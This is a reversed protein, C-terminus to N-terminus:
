AVGVLRKEERGTQIEKELFELSIDSNKEEYMLTSTPFDVKVNQLEELKNLGNELKLACSGCDLNELKVKKM